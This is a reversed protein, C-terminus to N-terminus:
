NLMIVSDLRPDGGLQDLVVDMMWERYEDTNPTKIMMYAHGCYKMNETHFFLFLNKGRTSLTSAADRDEPIRDWNEPMDNQIAYHKVLYDEHEIEIKDVLHEPVRM